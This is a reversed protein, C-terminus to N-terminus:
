ILNETKNGVKRTTNPKCWLYRNNQGIFSDDEKHIARTEKSYSAQVQWGSDASELQGLILVSLLHEM